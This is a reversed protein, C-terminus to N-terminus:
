SPIHFSAKSGNGWFIILLMTQLIFIIVIIVTCDAKLPQCRHLDNSWILARDLPGTLHSIATSPPPIVDSAHAAAQCSSEWCCTKHTKLVWRFHWSGNSERPWPPSSPPTPSLMGECDWATWAASSKWQVRGSVAQLWGVKDVSAPQPQSLRPM